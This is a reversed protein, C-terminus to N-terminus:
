RLASVPERWDAGRIALTMVGGVISIVGAAAFLLWFGGVAAVLAAGILPGLLQGLNAAVNVFGLDRAHDEEDQLLDTGLALSVSMYAGYGVGLLGAALMATTLTPLAALVIAAIGQIVASGVAIPVRRGTRDSVMGAAISSIVVFLTYILILLLLQDEAGTPESGIGYLLFFLLLSTGLANGINVVLRSTLLWSFDGRALTALRASVTRKPRPVAAAAPPDPLVLAAIVGVVALFVALVLYGTVVGLELLTIVGVGVVIGLAQSSSVAASATGRQSTLQDAILATFAASAVATGISVGIWAAGVGWPGSAFAIGVLSASALVVGGLAWPRRRGFAGRTRDSLAGSLPGAVVGALGGAALILGSTVVGSIWGGADDPTDLQLPILLQLPTLQVM